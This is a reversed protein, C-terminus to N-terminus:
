CPQASLPIQDAADPSETLRVEAVRMGACDYFLIRHEDSAWIAHSRLLRPGQIEFFRGCMTGNRRIPGELLPTGLPDLHDQECLRQRVFQRLQDLTPLAVFTAPTARPRM